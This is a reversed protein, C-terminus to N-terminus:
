DGRKQTCTRGERSTEALDLPEPKISDGREERRNEQEKRREDRKQEIEKRREERKAEREEQFKRNKGRREELEEPSLNARTRIEERKRAREEKEQRKGM